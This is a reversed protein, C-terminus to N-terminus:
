YDAKLSSLLNSSRTSAQQCEYFAGPLRIRHSESVVHRKIVKAVNLHRNMRITHSEVILCGRLRFIIGNM